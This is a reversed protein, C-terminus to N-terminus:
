PTGCGRCPEHRSAVRVGQDPHRARMCHHHRSRPQACAADCMCALPRQQECPPYFIPTGVAPRLAQPKCRASPLLLTPAHVGSAGAHPAHLVHLAHLAAAARRCALVGLTRAAESTPPPVLPQEETQQWGGQQGRANQAHPGASPRVIPAPMAVPRMSAGRNGRLQQGWAQRTRRPATLPAALTLPACVQALRLSGNRVCASALASLVHRAVAKCTGAKGQPAACARREAGGRVQAASPPGAVASTRLAAGRPPPAGPPAHQPADARLQPMASDTDM